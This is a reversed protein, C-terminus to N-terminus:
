DMLITALSGPLRSKLGGTAFIFSCDGKTWYFLFDKRLGRAELLM